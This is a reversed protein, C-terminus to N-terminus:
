RSVQRQQRATESDTYFEEDLDLDEDGAPVPIQRKRKAKANAQQPQDLQDPPVVAVLTASLGALILIGPWILHMMFLLTLGFLWITTQASVWVGLWGVQAIVIPVSVLWALLLVSFWPLHLVFIAALGFLFLAGCLVTFRDKLTM